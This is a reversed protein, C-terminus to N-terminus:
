IGYMVFAGWYLPRKYKKKRSDVSPNIFRILVEVRSRVLGNMASLLQVLMPM